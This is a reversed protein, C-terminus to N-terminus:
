NGSVLFCGTSDTEDTVLEHDLSGLLLAFGYFTPTTHAETTARPGEQHNSVLSPLVHRLVPRRWPIYIPGCSQRGPQPCPPRKFHSRRPTPRVQAVRQRARIFGTGEEPLRLQSEGPTVTLTFTALRAPPTACPGLVRYGSLARQWGTRPAYPFKFVKAAVSTFPAKNQQVWALPLLVPRRPPLALGRPPGPSRGTGGWARLSPKKRARWVRRSESVCPPLPSRAPTQAVSDGPQRAWQARWGPSEM